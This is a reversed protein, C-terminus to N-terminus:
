RRHRRRVCVVAVIGALAWWSLHIMPRRPFGIAVGSEGAAIRIRGSAFSHGQDDLLREVDDFRESAM